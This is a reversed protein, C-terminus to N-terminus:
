YFDTTFRLFTRFHEADATQGSVVAGPTGTPNTAIPLQAQAGWTISSPHAIYQITPGMFFSNSTERAPGGLVLDDFGHENDFELGVSFDPTVNYSAGLRFELASEKDFHGISNEVWQDEFNINLATRLTDNMFNKQFLLKTEISREKASWAPELYLAFGVPDFYPNLLRWILEGSVGFANSTEVRGLPNHAREQAFDYNLYLSGQLDDTIGYEFETRSEIENFRTNGHNTAWNLWQEIEKGQASQIDTTYVTVFPQDDARVPWALLALATAVLLGVLWPPLERVGRM